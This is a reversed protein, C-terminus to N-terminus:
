LEGTPKKIRPRASIITEPLLSGKKRARKRARAFVPKMVEQGPTIISALKV